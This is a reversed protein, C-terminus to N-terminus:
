EKLVDGTQTSEELEERIQRPTSKIGHRLDDQYINYVERNEDRWKYTARKRQCRQCFQSKKRASGKFYQHCDPCHLISYIPVRELLSNLFHVVAKDVGFVTFGSFIAEDRGAETAYNTLEEEPNPDHISGPILRYGATRILIGDPLLYFQEEGKEEIALAMPETCTILKEYQATIAQIKEHFIEQSKKLQDRNLDTDVCTHKLTDLGQYVRAWDGYLYQLYDHFLNLFGKTSLSPIDANLFDLLWRFQAQIYRKGPGESVALYPGRRKAKRKKQQSGTM